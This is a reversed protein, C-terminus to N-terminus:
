HDPAHGEPKRRTHCLLAIGAALLPLAAPAPVESLDEFSIDFFRAKQNSETAIGVPGHAFNAVTITTDVLTTQTNNNNNAVLLVRLQDGDLTITFDHVLNRATGTPDQQQFYFTPVNATEQVFRTGYVRDFGEGPERRDAEPLALQGQWYSSTEANAIGNTGLPDSPDAFHLNNGMTSLRFHDTIGQWGFLIHVSDEEGGRIFSGSFIFDGGTEFDSLLAGEAQSGLQGGGLDRWLNQPGDAVDSQRHDIPGPAETWDALLDAPAFSTPGAMAGPALIAALLVISVSLKLPM